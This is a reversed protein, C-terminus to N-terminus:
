LKQKQSSLEYCILEGSVYKENFNLSEFTMDYLPFTNKLSFGPREKSPHQNSPLGRILDVKDATYKLLLNVSHVAWYPTMGEKKLAERLENIAVKDKGQINVISMVIKSEEYHFNIGIRAAKKGSVSTIPCTWLAEPLVEEKDKLRCTIDQGVLAGITKNVILNLGIEFNDRAREVALKSRFLPM